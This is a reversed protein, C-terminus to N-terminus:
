AHAGRQTRKPKRRGQPPFEFLVPIDHRRYQASEWACLYEVGEQTCWSNTQQIANRISAGYSLKESPSQGRIPPDVGLTSLHTGGHDVRPSLNADQAASASPICSLRFRSVSSQGFWASNKWPVGCAGWSRGSRTSGKRPVGRTGSSRGFRM